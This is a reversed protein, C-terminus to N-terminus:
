ESLFPLKYSLKVLYLESRNHNYETMNFAISVALRKTVLKGIELTSTLSFEEDGKTLNNIEISNTWYLGGIDAKIFFSKYIYKPSIFISFGNSPLRYKDFVIPVSDLTMEYKGFNTFGIGFGVYLNHDENNLEYPYHTMAISYGTSDLDSDIFNENNFNFKSFGYGVSIETHNAAQLNHPFFNLIIILILQIKVKM